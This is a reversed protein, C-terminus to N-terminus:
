DIPRDMQATYTEWDVRGILLLREKLRACVRQLPRQLNSTVRTPTRTVSVIVPRRGLVV